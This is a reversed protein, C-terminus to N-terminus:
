LKWNFIEKSKFFLIRKNKVKKIEFNKKKKYFEATKGGSKFILEISNIVPQKEVSKIMDYITLLASSVAFIAEIEIGTKYHTKCMSFCHISDKDLFFEIKIKEIPLPHTLPVINSVSKAGIIGGIKATELVSGKKIKSDIILNLTKNSLSIRGYAISIRRSSSKSSIDVMELKGKNNLHSIKM